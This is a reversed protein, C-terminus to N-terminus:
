FILPHSLTAAPITLRLVARPRRAASAGARRQVSPAPPRNEVLSAQLAEMLNVTAKPSARAVSVIKEAAQKREILDRMATEYRDEFKAASVRTLQQELWAKLALVLPKSREQRVARREGASRGRITKEIAYLAAIRELAESAIPVPGRGQTRESGIDLTASPQGLLAAGGAVDYRAARAVVQNSVRRRKQRDSSFVAEVSFCENEVQHSRV